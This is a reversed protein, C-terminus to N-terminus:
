EFSRSSTTSKTRWPLRQKQQQLLRQWIKRCVSQCQNLYAKVGALLLRQGAHLAACRAEASASDTALKDTLKDLKAKLHKVDERLKVDKREFVKFSEATRDLQQQISLQM